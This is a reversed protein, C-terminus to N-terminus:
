FRSKVVTDATKFFGGIVQGAVEGAMMGVIQQSGRYVGLGVVVLIAAIAIRRHFRRFGQLQYM